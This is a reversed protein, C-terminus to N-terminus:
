IGVTTCSSRFSRWSFPRNVAIFPRNMYFRPGTATLENEPTVKVQNVASCASLSLVVILAVASRGISRRVCSRPSTMSSKRHKRM